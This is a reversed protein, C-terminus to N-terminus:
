AFRAVALRHAARWTRIAARLNAAAAESERRLESIKERSAELKKETVRLYEAKRQEWQRAAQQLREQALRLMHHTAECIRGPRAHLREELQRQQEAIEALQIKEAPVRRLHSALGARHLLWIAWKTPDFQWPKVGNRYDHQFEHHYNHYGEGFTLLAMIWSDRATCRSSYPRRGITHCFSNIFFTSHHVCVIRTVGALLLAGLGARAGGWAWGILAPLILGAGVGLPICYRHQWKLLRDSELDGVNERPSAPKLKFLLWGVHAHFFGRTIDYPDDEHDVHKHHRRHDSVWELASGEFCAAGFVLTAARVPWSARFALHAFLRHYGLTISLGSGLIFVLFLVVQFWDLGYWWVYRPVATLSLALTGILFLSTPWNIRASPIRFMNM